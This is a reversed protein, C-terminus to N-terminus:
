SNGGGCCATVFDSDKGYRCNPGIYCMGSPCTNWNAAAFGDCTSSSWGGCNWQGNGAYLCCAGTDCMAAVAADHSEFTSECPSDTAHLFIALFAKATLTFITTLM